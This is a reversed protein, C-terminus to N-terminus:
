FIDPFNIDFIAPLKDQLNVGFILGVTTWYTKTENNIVGSVWHFQTNVGIIIPTPLLNFITSGAITFGYGPSILGGGVKVGTELTAPIFSWGIRPNVQATLYYSITEFTEEEVPYKFDFQNIELGVDIKQNSITLLKRRGLSFAYNIGANYGELTKEILLPQGYSFTLFSKPSSGLVSDQLARKTARALKRAKKREEKAKKKETKAEKKAFDEVEKTKEIAGLTAMAAAAELRAIEAEREADYMKEIAKQAEKKAKDMEKQFKQVDKAQSKARKLLKATNSALENAEELATAAKILEDNAQNLAEEARNAFELALNLNNIDKLGHDIIQKGDWEYRYAYKDPQMYPIIKRELEKADQDIIIRVTEENKKDHIFEITRIIQNESNFYQVMRLFSGKEWFLLHRGVFTKDSDFYSSEIVESIIADNKEFTYNFNYSFYQFGVADRFSASKPRGDSRSKFDAIWGPRVYSLQDAYLYKDLRSANGLSNFEVTYESRAGSKSWVLHYTEKITRDKGFKTVKKIRNDKNYTVQYYQQGYFSQPEGKLDLVRRYPNWYKYYEIIPAKKFTKNLEVGYLFSSFLAFFSYTLFFKFILSAGL